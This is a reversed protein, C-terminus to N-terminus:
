EELSYSLCTGRHFIDLSSEEKQLGSGLAEPLVFFYPLILIGNEKRRKLLVWFSLRSFLLFQYATFFIRQMTLQGSFPCCVIHVFFVLTTYGITSRFFTANIYFRLVSSGFKQQWSLKATRSHSLTVLFPTPVQDLQRSSRQWTKRVVEVTDECLYAICSISWPPSKHLKQKRLERAGSPEPQQQVTTPDAESYLSLLLSLLLCPASPCLMIMM